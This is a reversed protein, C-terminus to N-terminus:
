EVIQKLFEPRCPVQLITINAKLATVGSLEAKANAPVNSTQWKPHRTDM